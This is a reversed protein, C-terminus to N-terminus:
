LQRGVSLRFVRAASGGLMADVEAQSFIIGDPQAVTLGKMIDIFSRNSVLPEYVPGDTAFLVQGPGIADVIERLYRRFLGPKSVAMMQWMSLDGCVNAKYQAVALWDRWWLHGMHAAVIQIGPFDLAV